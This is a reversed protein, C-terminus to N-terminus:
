RGRMVREGNELLRGGIITRQDDDHAFRGTRADALSQLASPRIVWRIVLDSKIAALIAAIKETVDAPTAASSAV